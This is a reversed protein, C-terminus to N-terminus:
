GGSARRLVSTAVETRIEALLGRLSRKAAGALITRDAVSGVVGLPVRYNGALVLRSSFADIPEVRLAGQFVPFAAAGELAQLDIHAGDPPDGVHDGARLAIKVTAGLASLTHSGAPDKHLADLRRLLVPVVFPAGSALTEILRIKM